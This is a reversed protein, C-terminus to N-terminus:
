FYRNFFLLVREVYEFYTWEISEDDVIVVLTDLITDGQLTCGTRPRDVTMQVHVKQRFSRTRPSLKVAQLNPTIIRHTAEKIIRVM